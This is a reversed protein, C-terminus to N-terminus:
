FQVEPGVFQWGWVAPPSAGLCAEEEGEEEPKLNKRPMSLGALLSLVLAHGCQYTFEIQRFLYIFDVTM